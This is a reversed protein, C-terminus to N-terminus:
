FEGSLDQNRGIALCDGRPTWDVSRVKDNLGVMGGSKFTLFAHYAEM